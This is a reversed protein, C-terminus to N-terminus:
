YLANGSADIAANLEDKDERTYYEYCRGCYWEGVEEYFQSKSDPNGKGDSLMECKCCECVSEDDSEDDDEEPEAEEKTDEHYLCDCCMVKGGVLKLGCEGEIQGCDACAGKFSPPLDTIEEKTDEHNHDDDHDSDCCEGWNEQQDECCEACLPVGHKKSYDGCEAWCVESEDNFETQCRECEYKGEDNKPTKIYDYNTQTTM